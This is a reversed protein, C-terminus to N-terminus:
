EDKDEVEKAHAERLKMLQSLAEESSMNPDVKARIAINETANGEVLQAKDFVIGAVKALSMLSENRFAARNKGLYDLKANLLVWVKKKAGVVLGKEDLPDVVTSEQTLLASGRKAKREEIGKEVMQVVETNLGFKEPSAKVEKYITYIVNTIKTKTDYHKDLGFELGVAHISKNALAKFIQRKQLDTFTM